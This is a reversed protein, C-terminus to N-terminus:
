EQANGACLVPSAAAFFENRNYYYASGHLQNSGSKIMLKVTGGSDRGVEPGSHTQVSFEELADLPM